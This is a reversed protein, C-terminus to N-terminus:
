AAEHNLCSFTFKHELKGIADKNKSSKIRNLSNQILTSEIQHKKKIIKIM